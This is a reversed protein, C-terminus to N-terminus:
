MRIARPNREREWLHQEEMNKDERVSVKVEGGERERERKERGGGERTRERESSRLMIQLPQHRPEILPEEGMVCSCESRTALTSISTRLAASVDTVSIFHPPHLAVSVVDLGTHTHTHVHVGDTSVEM